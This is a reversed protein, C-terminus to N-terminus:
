RKMKNLVTAYHILPLSKWRAWLSRNIGTPEHAAKSTLPVLRVDLSLGVPSPANSGDGRLAKFLLNWCAVVDRHWLERGKSCRGIRSGNSYTVPVNHIPCLKSTNRPNLYIVPVTSGLRRRM